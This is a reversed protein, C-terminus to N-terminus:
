LTLTLPKKKQRFEKVYSDQKEKNKSYYSRMAKKCQAKRCVTCCRHGKKDIMDYEHGKPCHNKDRHFDYISGRRNNEAQTVAELHDPNVCSPNRCLHDITLNPNLKGYRMFYAIRHARYIKGNIGINGYGSDDRYGTFVHCGNEGMKTKWFFRTITKHDLEPIPLFGM